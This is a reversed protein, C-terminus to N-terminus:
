RHNDYEYDMEGEIRSFRSFERHCVDHMGDIERDGQDPDIVNECWDCVTLGDIKDLHKM